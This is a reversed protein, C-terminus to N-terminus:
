KSLLLEQGELLDVKRCFDAFGPYQAASIRQMPLLVSRKLVLLEGQREYALEFRGTSGGAPGFSAAAPLAVARQGPPLHLRIELATDLPAALLETTTRTSVRAFNAALQSAFLAPLAWGQPVKRGLVDVDFRYRLVIAEAAHERGEIELKTLQAGPVLRAVYDDEFRRELEAAPISELQGRWGVAGTGHVTEMVQVHASGEASLEVELQLERRDAGPSGAPLRVEHLGPVLLLAAEGRLPAPVFGFPAWREVTFLWRAADGEGVRLMLHEYTNEDAMTSRVTDGTASRVLALTSPVNAMGLLYHLVRTRNGAKARLMTAAQSFLDDNNEVNELVWDYLRQAREMPSKADAVLSQVLRAVAPDHLDRDVIVERIGEVFPEWGANVGVRVSPIYERSAVSGPEPSLPPSETVRFELVRLGDEIREIARPAEGRPDVQVQMREPVVVMLHSYDFPVEFSRFYFRDGLYGSPFGESATSDLLYEVEVYDGVSVSPLSVADKGAIQDPELRRGDPKVVRLTLVRAGEPVQVEALEDVAEDSQVRQITHVLAQESGDDFVRAVMYDLVLVQPGEYSRGSKEFAAIVAAGDKRYREMADSAGLVPAIRRLEALASPEAVLGADLAQRAEALKGAAALRDVQELLPSVSRPYERRLEALSSEVLADDGLNRGLEAWALLWGFRDQAPDLAELRALESQAAKFDRQRLRLSFRANSRADCAMVREVTAAAAKERGLRRLMELEAYAPACAHPLRANLARVLADAEADWDESRLLEVLALTLSPVEPWRQRAERLVQIAEKARGNEAALRALQVTPAWLGEDRQLASLLLQRADDDRVESPVLPDGLAVSARQMFLLASAKIGVKIGTLTERAGLVDGRALQAASRLYRAFGQELRAQEPLQVRAAEAATVPLLALAMVPNPHRTGLKLTLLHEGAALELPLFRVRADMVRRRDLRLQEKGDVYLVVSNPTEVRLLYSGTRPASLKSQVYSTGGEGLPGGGISVQCGRAGLTRVSRKGRGPGLDYSALLPAAPNVGHDADFGLLQRPGFPGAVRWETVCGNTQALAQAASRDGRRQALEIRLLQANFRVAPPLGPQALAKALAAEVRPAFDDVSESLGSLALVAIEAALANELSGPRAANAIADLYAQLALAPRGHVDAYLGAGLALGVDHRALARARGLQGEARAPDGDYAFLEGLAVRTQLAADGPAAAALERLTQLSPQPAPGSACGIALAIVAFGAFGTFGARGARAQRRSSVATM